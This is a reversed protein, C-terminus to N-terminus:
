DNTLLNSFKDALTRVRERKNKDLNFEVDVTTAPANILINNVIRSKEVQRNCVKDIFALAKNMADDAQLYYREMDKQSYEGATIKAPDYLKQEISSAVDMLHAVRQMTKYVMMSLFANGSANHTKLLGNVRDIEALDSDNSSGQLYNIIKKLDVGQHVTVAGM